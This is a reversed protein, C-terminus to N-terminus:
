RACPDAGIMLLYAVVDTSGNGAALTLAEDHETHVDAGYNM